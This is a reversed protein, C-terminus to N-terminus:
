VKRGVFLKVDGLSVPVVLEPVLRSAAIVPGAAREPLAAALKRWIYRLSAYHRYPEVRLVEFGSDRMMRALVDGDFYFLHMEM